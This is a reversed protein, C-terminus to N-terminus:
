PIAKAELRYHGSVLELKSEGLIRLGPAHTPSHASETWHAYGSPLEVIASSNPPVMLEVSIQGDRLTWASSILGIPTQM